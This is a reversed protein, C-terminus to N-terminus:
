ARQFVFENCGPRGRCTKIKILVFGKLVLFDVIQEPSAVEFPYGGLWDIMDHWLTMGREYSLRGTLARIALRMFYLVPSYVAIVLPRYLISKNYIRKVSLWYRSLLGQDNYISIFLTGKQKVVSAVNEIAQWM